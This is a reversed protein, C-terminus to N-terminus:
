WSGLLKSINGLNYIQFQCKIGQLINRTDFIIPRAMMGSIANYDLDRFDLHDSLILIMHSDEVAEQLASGLGPVHPEYVSVTYGLAMLGSQVVLAPSERLDGINGKYSLGFLAIKVDRHGAFIKDVTEIVYAPMDANIHRALSLLRAQSLAKEVIFYPDVALCHGGVGPGPNLLDVRPHHNALQIVELVDLGIHQCIIALENVLAINVDRYANEVLKTMEATASDTLYLPGKVFQQYLQQAQRACKPTFGGILRPNCVIEHMIKGPLVREPCHALYIDRGVAYGYKELIPKVVEQCYRPPVTSEIVIINGPQLCAMLSELAQMIYGLDAQKHSTLPTPVAIIFADSSVPYESFRLYHHQLAQRLMEELGPEEIVVRGHNLEELLVPNVDVGVVQIGASALAICTPLGIYGLGLVCVQNM